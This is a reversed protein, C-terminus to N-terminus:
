KLGVRAKQYVREPNAYYERIINAVDTYRRIGQRAMWDLVAQRRSLESRVEEESIGQKKMQKELLGSKTLSSYKDFKPNWNFIEETLITDTEADFKVVEATTKIRRAPRADVETRCMVMVVNAMAILTKPINMPESELRNIAADVSEAHMTCMGLHGTAIAQFLTYAEEGRVEGVVIYDPRQRVAAKLLDFLTISGSKRDEHGFGLRAVSPIWNEHPLNLEQTEEVSVVKMEPKIFMSLCNLMTTKGSAVGGAVLVSARNEIAYWLYSGMESSITKFAILDSITLPDIRFRRITFTSGRRTVESGFTLQVRSGDPLSADLIPSAISISKRSLYAMRVIFSDLESEEKFIINTPISEHIRHWVYIPINVGDASIDEILHDNMLPDIKGYGIFDRIIYYILKDVAEQAVKVRYKRIIRRTNEKLYSEAKEKTEMDKLNVNIEEMLLDKLDRLKLEEDEHLTPEIVEYRMKETEPEKVIAAYVYPEQIPYVERFVTPKKGDDSAIIPPRVKSELLTSGKEQTPEEAPPM